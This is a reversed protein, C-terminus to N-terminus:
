TLRIRPDIWAYIIDVVTNMLVLILAFLLVTGMVVPYDRNSISLVFQRGIGPIAFILETVFSGTVLFATLPGLVTVVPIMANKLAHLRIVRREHLGKARATRIYDEHLVQLLSARTLRAIIASQAFGLAFAPLIVHQPTGWGTIPLWGLSVGFLYQLFPGLIIVPFSVGVIAVGMSAYDLPKNHNLAAIVGAPLGIALAVFLSALGLQVSVPFQDRFFDNVPRGRSNFSPGFNMWRIALDESIEINILYDEAPTRKWEADTVTPILIGGVYNLYQQTVPADLNYKEEINALVRPPLEKEGDFPGGPIARLFFFTVVSVVILVVFMALLRRIIFSAM